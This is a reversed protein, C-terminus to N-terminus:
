ISVILHSSSHKEGIASKECNTWSSLCSLNLLM